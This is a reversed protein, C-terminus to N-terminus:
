AGSCEGGDVAPATRARAFLIWRRFPPQFLSCRSAVGGGVLAAFEALTYTLRTAGSREARNRKEDNALNCLCAGIVECNRARRFTAAFGPPLDRVSMAVDIFACCGRAPLTGLCPSVSGDCGCGSGRPCNRAMSFSASGMGPSADCRPSVLEDREDGAGRMNMWCVACSALRKQRRSAGPWRM